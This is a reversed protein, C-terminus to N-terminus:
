SGWPAISCPRWASVPRKWSCRRMAGPRPKIPPASRWRGTIMAPRGPRCPTPTRPPWSSHSWRGAVPTGVRGPRSRRQRLRPTSNAAIAQASGGLTEVVGTDWYAHLSTDRGDPSPSLGVCNGGRDKHDSAHLPQHLDGVFHILFKLALIREAQPRPRITGIRARVRRDQRGCLGPGAGREGAGPRAWPRFDSAPARCTPITSRSTSSTGPPRRAIAM